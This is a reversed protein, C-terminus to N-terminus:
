RLPLLRLVEYKSYDTKKGSEECRSPGRFSLGALNGRQKESKIRCICFPDQLIKIKRSKAAQLLSQGGGSNILTKLENAILIKNREKM